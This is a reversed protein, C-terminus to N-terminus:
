SLNGQQLAPPHTSVFDDHFANGAVAVTPAIPRVQRVPRRPGEHDADVADLAVAAPILIRDLAEAGGPEGHREEVAAAGPQVLLAAAVRGTEAPQEIVD